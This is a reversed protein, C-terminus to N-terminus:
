FVCNLNLATSIVFYNINFFQQSKLFFQKKIESTLHWSHQQLAMPSLTLPAGPSVYVGHPSPWARERSGNKADTQARM